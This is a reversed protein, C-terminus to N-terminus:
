NLLEIKFNQGLHVLGKYNINPLSQVKFVMADTIRNLLITNQNSDIKYVGINTFYNRPLLTCHFSWEVLYTKDKEIKKFLGGNGIRTEASTLNLGKEDKLAMTFFVNEFIENFKVKYSYIYKEDMVLVNVRKGGPTKIQIDSIDVPYNKHEVTSKSKFNPLFFPKLKFYSNKTGTKNPEKKGEETEIKKVNDKFGKKANEDKNLQIIENRVNKKQDPRTYLLKQYHMTVFKPPGSLILEGNDLFIAETCIQNVSPVSHSVYLVTCGSKFLEEMKAYCKRRFLEDGVSLVEDVVLIEPEMNIALAFGLRAKMGSSYTKFPQQIFIGIDAFAIIDEIKEKMEERSSGLMTGYFYINEMGSFDPNLGAGLELLASVNGNVVVKGSNPQVVGSILKLLTSKGSGNRGVIGLIEGKKVELNINKLAYFERHFKKGFPHLAEKLRDKPENYLKYFKSINELKIAIESM